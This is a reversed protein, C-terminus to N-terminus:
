ALGYRWEESSQLTGEVELRREVADVLMKSAGSPYVREWKLKDAHTYVLHVANAITSADVPPALFNGGALLSEGRDSGFRLTVCPVELINAEEQISGSDTAIVACHQMALVVQAYSEWVPSTVFRDGFRRQLEELWSEMGFRKIAAETGLLRIFLIRHGDELLHKMSSMLARFRSEDTTNERRHVCFRIFQGNELAPYTEFLETADAHDLFQEVADVVSNSVVDISAPAYGEDVLYERNLETPAAHLHSGADAVRTNFQEPSPERSGRAYSARDATQAAYTEWDLDNARMRDTWERLIEPTPSLTRLGAEVHVLGHGGSFAAVAGGMATTTDGHVYLIPAAGDDALEDLYGALRGSIGAALQAMNGVVELNADPKLDFDTMIAGSLNHDFHQGTHCLMTKHGRNKLEHYVPGQKIIDPKTGILVVHVADRADRVPGQELPTGPSHLPDNVPQEQQSV